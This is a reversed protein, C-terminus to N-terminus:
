KHSPLPNFGCLEPWFYPDKGKGSLGMFIVLQDPFLFLYSSLDSSFPAPVFFCCYLCDVGYYYTISSSVSIHARYIYPCQNVCYLFAPMASPCPLAQASQLYVACQPSCASMVTTLAFGNWSMFYYLYKLMWASYFQGYFGLQLWTRQIVDVEWLQALGETLKDQQKWTWQQLFPAHSGQVWPCAKQRKDPTLVGRPALLESSCRQPFRSGLRGDPDM